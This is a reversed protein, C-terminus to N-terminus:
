SVGASLDDITGRLGNAREYVPHIIANEGTIELCEFLYCDTISLWLNKKIKGVLVLSITETDVEKKTNTTISTSEAKLTM